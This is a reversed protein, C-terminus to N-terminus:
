KDFCHDDLFPVLLSIFPQMYAYYVKYLINPTQPSNDELPFSLSTIEEKCAFLPSIVKPAEYQHFMNVKRPWTESRVEIVCTLRVNRVDLNTRFLPQVM